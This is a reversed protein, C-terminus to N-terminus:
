HHTGAMDQETSVTLVFFLVEDGNVSGQVEQTVAVDQKLCTTCSLSVNKTLISLHGSIHNAM